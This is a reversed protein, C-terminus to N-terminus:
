DPLRLRGDVVWQCWEEKPKGSSVAETGAKRWVDGGCHRLWRFALGGMSGRRRITLCERGIAGVEDVWVYLHKARRSM